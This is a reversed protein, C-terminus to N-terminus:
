KQNTYGWCDFRQQIKTTLGFSEDQPEPQNSSNEYNKGKEEVYSGPPPCANGPPHVRLPFKKFVMLVAM